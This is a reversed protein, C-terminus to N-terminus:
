NLNYLKYFEDLSSLKSGFNDYTLLEISTGYPITLTRLQKIIYEIQVKTLRGSIPEAGDQKPTKSQAPVAETAKAEEAEGTEANQVTSESDAQGNNDTNTTDASKTQGATSAGTDASDEVVKKPSLESIARQIESHITEAIIKAKNTSFILLKKHSKLANLEKSKEKVLIKQEELKPGPTDNAAEFQALTLQAAVLEADTSTIKADASAVTDKELLADRQKLEGGFQSVLVKMEGFNAEQAKKTISDRLIKGAEVKFRNIADANAADIAELNELLDGFSQQNLDVYEARSDKQVQLVLYSNDKYPEDINDSDDNVKYLKATNNDFRLNKWDTDQRRHDERIFILDGAELVSINQNTGATAPHLVNVFRYETDNQNTDLLTAGLTNLIGLNTALGPSVTSGLEAITSMLARGQETKVDLELVHIVIGLPSGNYKTPGYVLLDDFNLYQGRAVDSSYYIVRGNEISQPSFDFGSGDEADSYEFVQAIIAIEGNVEFRRAPNPLLEFFDKIFAQRLVVTVTSGKELLGEESLQTDQKWIKTYPGEMGEASQNIEEATPIEAKRFDIAGENSFACGQTFVVIGFLM